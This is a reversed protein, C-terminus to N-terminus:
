LYLCLGGTKRRPSKQWQLFQLVLQSNVLGGRKWVPNMVGSHAARGNGCLFETRLTGVAPACSPAPMFDALQHLDPSPVLNVGPKSDCGEQPLMASWREHDVEHGGVNTCCLKSTWDDGFETNTYLLKFLLFFNQREKWKYGLMKIDSYVCVQKEWSASNNSWLIFTNSGTKKFTHDRLTLADSSTVM